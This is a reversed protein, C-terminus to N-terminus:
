AKLEILNAPNLPQKNLTEPKSPAPKPVILRYPTAASRAPKAMLLGKGYADIVAVGDERSDGHLFASTTM